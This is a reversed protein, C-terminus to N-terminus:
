ELIGDPPEEQEAPYDQGPAGAEWLPHRRNITELQLPVQPLPILYGSEVMSELASETPDSRFICQTVVATDIHDVPTIIRDAIAPFLGLSSGIENGIRRNTM